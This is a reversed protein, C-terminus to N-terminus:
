EQERQWVEFKCYFQSTEALRFVIGTEGRDSYTKLIEHPNDTQGPHFGNEFKGPDSILRYGHEAPNCAAMCCTDADDEISQLYDPWDICDDCVIECENMIRYSPQWSYGDPSTRVLKGCDSCTSWEDSWEIAYGARELIDDLGRPFKNWNLLVVGKEPDTYGPEAYGTAYTLNDIESKADRELQRLYDARLDERNGDNVYGKGPIHASYCHPTHHGKIMSSVAAKLIFELTMM